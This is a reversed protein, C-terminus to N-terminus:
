REMEVEATELTSTDLQTWFKESTIDYNFAIRELNDDIPTKKIDKEEINFFADFKEISGFPTPTAATQNEDSINYRKDRFSSNVLNSPTVKQHIVNVMTKLKVPNQVFGMMSTIGLVLAVVVVPYFIPSALTDKFGSTSYIENRDKNPQQTKM